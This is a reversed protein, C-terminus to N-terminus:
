EMGREKIINLTVCFGNTKKEEGVFVSITLIMVFFFHLPLSSYFQLLVYLQYIIHLLIKDSINLSGVEYEESVAAKLM